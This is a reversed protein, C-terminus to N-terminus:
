YCYFLAAGAAFSSYPQGTAPDIIPTGNAILSWGAGQASFNQDTVQNEGPYASAMPVFVLIMVSFLINVIVLKLRDPKSIKV